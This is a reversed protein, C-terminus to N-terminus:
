HGPTHPPWSNNYTRVVAMGNNLHGQGQVQVEMMPHDQVVLIPRTWENILRM